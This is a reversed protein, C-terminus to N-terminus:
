FLAKQSAQHMPDRGLPKMDYRIEWEGGKLKRVTIPEGEKQLEWVRALARSGGIGRLRTNTASGHQKLFRRIKEKNSLARDRDEADM